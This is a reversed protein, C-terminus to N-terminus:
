SDSMTNLKPKYKYIYILNIALMVLAATLLYYKPTFNLKLLSFLYMSGTYRGKTTYELLYYAFAIIYGSSLQNTFNGITFAISGLYMITIVTGAVVEWYPFISGKWMAFALLVLIMAIVSLLVIVFRLLVVRWHSVKRVNVLETAFERNEISGIYAFLLIGSISLYLETVKAIEKYSLLNFSFIFPTLLFLAFAALANWDLLIKSNYWILKIFRAAM